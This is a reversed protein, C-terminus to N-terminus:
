YRSDINEYIDLKQSVAHAIAWVKPVTTHDKAGIRNLIIRYCLFASVVCGQGVLLVFVVVYIRLLTRMGDRATTTCGAPDTSCVHCCRRWLLVWWWLVFNGLVLLIWALAAAALVRLLWFIYCRYVTCYWSSFYVGSCACAATCCIMNFFDMWCQPPLLLRLLCMM